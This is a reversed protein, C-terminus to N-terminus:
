FTLDFVVPVTIQTMQGNLYQSIAILMFSTKISYTCMHSECDLRSKMLVEHLQERYKTAQHYVQPYMHTGLGNAHVQQVCACMCVCEYPNESTGEEIFLM